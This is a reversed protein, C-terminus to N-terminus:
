PLPRQLVNGPGARGTALHSLALPPYAVNRQIPTPSNSNGKSYLLLAEKQSKRQEEKQGNQSVLSPLNGSCPLDLAALLPHDRCSVLAQYRNQLYHEHRRLVTCQMRKGGWNEGGGQGGPGQIGSNNKSAAAANIWAPRAWSAKVTHSSSSLRVDNRSGLLGRSHSSALLLVM